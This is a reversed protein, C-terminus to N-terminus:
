VESIKAGTETFNKYFEVKRLNALKQFGESTCMASTCEESTLQIERVELM